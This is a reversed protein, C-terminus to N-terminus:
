GSVEPAKGVLKGAPGKSVEPPNGVLGDEDMRMWGERKYKCRQSGVEICIAALFM